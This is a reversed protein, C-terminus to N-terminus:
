WIVIDEGDVEEFVKEHPLLLTLRSRDLVSMYNDVDVPDPVKIDRLVLRKANLVHKVEELLERGHM